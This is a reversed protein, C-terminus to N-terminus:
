SKREMVLVENTVFDLIFVRGRSDTAAGLGGRTSDSLGSGARMNKPFLEPGAVVSEFDGALNYIKVRPLGKEATVLRGDSLMAINIPNCCGCFGGIGFAPKGWASVFKGDFSYSEVRHRGTNNVRLLGDPHIVVNLYPSPVALGPANKEANKEGIRDLLKGGRSYRWVVRSASDAVFVDREGAAIGTFWSKKNPSNWAAVSRGRKDFIHVASRSGAYVVGDAAVSACYVREPLAIELGPQGEPSFAALYDGACIYIQDDPGSSIHRGNQRPCPWRGAIQYNILSPDTNEFKSLDYAFPNAAGAEAARAAVAALGFLVGSGAVTGLFERRDLFEFERKM